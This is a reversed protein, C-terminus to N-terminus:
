KSRSISFELLSTRNKVFFLLLHFRKNSPSSVRPSRASFVQCQLASFPVVPHPYSPFRSRPPVPPRYFVPLSASWLSWTTSCLISPTRHRHSGISDGKRWASSGETIDPVSQLCTSRSWFTLLVLSGHIDHCRAFPSSTEHFESAEVDFNVEAVKSM